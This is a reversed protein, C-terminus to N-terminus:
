RKRTGKLKQPESMGPYHVWITQDEYLIAPVAQKCGMSGSSSVRPCVHNANIVINLERGRGMKVQMEWALKVEAHHSVDAYMPFNPFGYSDKLFRNIADSIESKGSVLPSDWIPTGDADFLYGSTPDGSKRKPLKDWAEM